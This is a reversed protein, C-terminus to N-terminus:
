FSVEYTIYYRVIQKLSDAGNSAPSPSPTTHGYGCSTIITLLLIAIPLLVVFAAERLVIQHPVHHRM